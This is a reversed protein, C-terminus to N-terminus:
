REGRDKQLEDSSFGRNLETIYEEFKNTEKIVRELHEYKMLEGKYMALQRATSIANRIERGNLSRRSLEAIHARINSFDFGYSMTARLPPHSPTDVTKSNELTELRYIFNEWIKQRQHQSLNEYRITLQIRSRFAEDFIGVRNSTLILIGDYYELVRLFVSVLANRELNSLSRQELFVDAEDLLVVCGWTKGLVLVVELYKEVEEPKTGIDGCTVLPKQAMEAVSEATLTKGTGPGGHLLIFLGNGKGRIVDAHDEAQLQNTVVAQVLEKTGEELVLLEFAEKNWVVDEIYDVRLTVWEKKQMNFGSVTAPLCMYFDDSLGPDDRSMVEPGLDDRNSVHGDSPPHMQKFTMTDIMFRLDSMTQTGNFEDGKYCVYDRQRCKWFMRGRHRLNAIEHKTAFRAPYVSLDRIPFEKTPSPTNISARTPKREFRGDFTWKNGALTFKSSDFWDTSTFAELPCISRSASDGQDRSICIEDPVFLYHMYAATIYGTTLLQDISAWEEGLCTDLYRQFVDLHLQSHASVHAEPRAIESRSHFWWLYPHHIKTINADDFDPAKDGLASDRLEILAHRFTDSMNSVYEKVFLDKLQLDPLAGPRYSDCCKFERFVLFTMEKNRELHLEFNHIKNSGRLHIKNSADQVLWPADLYLTFDNSHHCRVRNIVQYDPPKPETSRESTLRRLDALESSVAELKDLIEEDTLESPHSLFRCIEERWDIMM